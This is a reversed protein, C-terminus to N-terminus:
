LKTTNLAESLVKKYSTYTFKCGEINKDMNSNSLYSQIIIGIGSISLTALDTLPAITIGGTSPTIAAMKLFLRIKKKKKTEQIGVQLM